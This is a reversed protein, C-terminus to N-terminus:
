YYAITEEIAEAVKEPFGTIFDYFPEELCTASKGFKINEIKFNYPKIM